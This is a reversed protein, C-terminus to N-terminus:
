IFQLKKRLRMWAQMWNLVNLHMCSGIINPTMSMSKHCLMCCSTGLKFICLHSKLAYAIISPHLKGYLFTSFHHWLETKCLSYKQIHIINNWIKGSPIKSQWCLHQAAPVQASRAQHKLSKMQFVRQAPWVLPASRVLLHDWIVKLVMIAMRHLGM